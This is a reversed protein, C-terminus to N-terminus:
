NRTRRAMVPEAMAAAAGIEAVAEFAVCGPASNVRRTTAGAPTRLRRGARQRRLAEALPETLQPVARRGGSGVGRYHPSM